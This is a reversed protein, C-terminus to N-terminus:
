SAAKGSAMMTVEDRAVALHTRVLPHAASALNKLTPDSGASEVQSMTKDLLEHGEVGIERVYTRDFEAGSLGRLKTLMAQTKDDVTNPLAVKKAAAIEELKAKLGTQEAVEADAYARVDAATAKQMALRSAELQMMGGMAVKMMLAEDTKALAASTPSVAAVAAAGKKNLGTFEAMSLKGVHDPAAAAASTGTQALSTKAVWAGAVALTGSKLFTRRDM